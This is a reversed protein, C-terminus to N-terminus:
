LKSIINPPYIRPIIEISAAKRECIKTAISKYINSLDKASPASYYDQPESAVQKLFEANIDKGLGITFIRTGQSKASLAQQQASIEPYKIDGSKLPRTAVGDTLLVIIKVSSSINKSSQLESQSVNIADSINTEQVGDTHIELKSIVDKLVGFNNSLPFDAPKSASTAFSVLAAQDEKNLLDVFSVAASKVDTLPQPPNSGLSRMSGSRDLAIAVDVLNSCEFQKKVFPMPWTFVIPKREGPAINEVLTRSAGIANGASDSVIAVLEINSIQKSSNNTVIAEIKPSTDEGILPKNEIDIQAFPELNKVWVLDSDFSFIAKTPTREGTTFNGEFIAFTQGRPIFTEGKRETILIGASDYLKFTYPASLVEASVNQNDLYAIVSYLGEKIRFIRPDWRAIPERVEASCLLRCSGGCDVGTEDGNQSRDFCTPKQYVFFYLPLGIFIIILAALIGFYQLKRKTAWDM